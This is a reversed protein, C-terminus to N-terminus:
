INNIDLGVDFFSVSISNILHPFDIKTKSSFAITLKVVYLKFCYSM